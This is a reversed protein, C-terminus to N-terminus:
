GYLTVSTRFELPKDDDLDLNSMIVFRHVEINVRHSEEESAPLIAFRGHAHLIQGDMDREPSYLRLHCPLWERASATGLTLFSDYLTLPSRKRQPSGTDDIVINDFQRPNVVQFFGEILSAM